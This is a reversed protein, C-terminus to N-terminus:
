VAQRDSAACTTTGAHRRCTNLSPVMRKLTSLNNLESVDLKEDM